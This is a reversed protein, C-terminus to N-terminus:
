LSLSTEMQWAHIHSPATHVLSSNLSDNGLKGALEPAQARSDSSAAGSGVRSSSDDASSSSSFSLSMIFNVRGCRGVGGGGTALCHDGRRVSAGVDLRAPVSQNRRQLLNGTVTSYLQTVAGTPAAPAPRAAFCFCIHRSSHRSLPAPTTTSEPKRNRDADTQLHLRDAAVRM